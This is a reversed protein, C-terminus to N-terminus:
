PTGRTSHADSTEADAAARCPQFQPTDAATATGANGIPQFEIMLDSLGAVPAPGPAVADGSSRAPGGSVLLTSAGAPVPVTVALPGSRLRLDRNPGEGSVTLRWCADDTNLSPGFLRASVVLRGPRNALIQLQARERGIEFYPHAPVENGLRNVVRTVASWGRDSTDWLGFAGVGWVLRWGAPRLGAAAPDADLLVYRVGSAPWPQARDMVPQLHPMALYGSRVALLLHAHRLFYAGWAADFPDGAILAVPAGAVVTTVQQVARYRSISEGTARLTHMVARASTVAPVILLWASVLIWAIRPMRPLRELLWAAATVMAFAWLWWGLLLIKYGGYTYHERWLFVIAMASLGGVVLCFAINGRRLLQWLGLPLGLLMTAGLLSLVPFFAAIMQEGGLAPLASPLFRRELLGPFVGEGPRGTAGTGIAVQSRFFPALDSAYPSLVIVLVVGAVIGAIWIGRSSRRVAAELGFLGAAGLVVISFEPYTYVAGAATIGILVGTGVTMVPVTVLTVLAPFLHLALANDYNNVWVVDLVWGSIASVAVYLLALRQPLGRLWAFAACASALSFIALAQMLGSASQTEGPSAIVSLLGLQGPAAFRTHSLHSGYQYIPALGGETGRPFEWLYQGFAVYSWGDFLGSGPYDALGYVFYPLMVVPAAVVSMALLMAVRRREAVADATPTRVAETRLSRWGVFSLGALLLWVPAAIHKLPLGGIVSTGIIIALLAQTVSAGLLLALAPALGVRLLRIVGVGAATFLACALLYRLLDLM